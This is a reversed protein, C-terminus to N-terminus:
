RQNQLSTPKPTAMAAYAQLKTGVGVLRVGAWGVWRHWIKPKPPLREVAANHLAAQRIRDKMQEKRYLVDREDFYM